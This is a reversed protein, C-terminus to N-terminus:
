EEDTRPCAGRVVAVVHEGKIHARLRVAESEAEAVDHHWCGFGRVNADLEYHSFCHPKGDVSLYAGGHRLREAEDREKELRTAEVLQEPFTPDAETLAHVAQALTKTGLGERDSRSLIVVALADFLQKTIAPSVRLTNTTM